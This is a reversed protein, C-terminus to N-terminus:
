PRLSFHAVARRGKFLRPGPTATPSLSQKRRLRYRRLPGCIGARRRAPVPRLVAAIFFGPEAGYNHATCPRLGGAAEPVEQIAARVAAILQVVIPVAFAFVEWSSDSGLVDELCGCRSRGLGKEWLGPVGAPGAPDAAGSCWSRWCDERAHTSTMWSLCHGSGLNTTRPEHNTIAVSCQCWNVGRASGLWGAALPDVLYTSGPGIGQCLPKRHIM